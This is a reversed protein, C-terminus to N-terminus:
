TPLQDNFAIGEHDVGHADFLRRWAPSLILKLARAYDASWQVERQRREVDAARPKM